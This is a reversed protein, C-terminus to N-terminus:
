EGFRVRRTEQEEGTRRILSEYLEPRRARMWRRGSSSPLQSAALDAIIMADGAQRTEAVVEGYPDLVMANGTRIEDDDPGVGNSFLLFMGNDHARSPLWRMLWGRGKPGCLEAECAGPDEHRREWVARDVPKMARPSVSDCGGTQHPALLIEAGLLATARANEVINNDYCILVGVRCGHPTDFVTYRDGPSLYPSVFVHLKRHVEWRGDPMAVLYANYLKGDQDREVLGAGITIGHERSLERLARSSPGEPVPEALAEFEERSLKRTHWYGTICMEPFAIIEAGAAAAETVFDRIKGLNYSKDGPAHQFQVTAVRIDRM